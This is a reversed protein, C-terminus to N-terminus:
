DHNLLLFNNQQILKIIEDLEEKKIIKPGCCPILGEFKQECIPCYDWFDIM